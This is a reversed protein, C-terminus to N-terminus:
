SPNHAILHDVQLPFSKVRWSGDEGLPWLNDMVKKARSSWYESGKIEGRPLGLLDWVETGIEMADSSQGYVAAGFPVLRLRRLSQTSQKSVILDWIGRALDEDTAANILTDRFSAAWDNQSNLCDSWHYCRPRGGRRKIPLRLEQLNPCSGSLETVDHSDLLPYNYRTSLRRAHKLFLRGRRGEKLEFVANQLTVSDGFPALIGFPNAKVFRCIHWKAEIPLIEM